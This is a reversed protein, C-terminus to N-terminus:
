TKHQQVTTDTKAAAANAADAATTNVFKPEINQTATDTADTKATAANAATTNVFKNTDHQNKKGCSRTRNNKDNNDALM